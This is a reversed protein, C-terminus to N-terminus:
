SFMPEGEESCNTMYLGYIDLDRFVIGLSHCHELARAMQQCIEIARREELAESRTSKLSYDIYDILSVAHELNSFDGKENMIKIEEKTYVVNEFNIYREFCLYIYNRNEFFDLLRVM